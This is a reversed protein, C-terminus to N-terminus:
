VILRNKNDYVTDILLQLTAIIALIMNYINDIINDTNLGVVNSLYLVSIVWKIWEM